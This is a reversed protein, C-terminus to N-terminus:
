LLDGLLRCSQGVLNVLPERLQLFESQAVLISHDREHAVSDRGELLAGVLQAVHTEAAVGVPGGGELQAVRLNKAPNLSEEGGM